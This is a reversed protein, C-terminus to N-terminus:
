RRPPEQVPLLQFTLTTAEFFNVGTPSSLFGLLTANNVVTTPKTVVFIDLGGGNTVVGGLVNLFQSSGNFSLAPLGNVANTVITPRSGSTTQVANNGEVSQHTLKM